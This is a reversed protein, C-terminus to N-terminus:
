LIWSISSMQHSYTWWILKNRSKKFTDRNESAVVGVVALSHAKEVTHSLLKLYPSLKLSLRPM